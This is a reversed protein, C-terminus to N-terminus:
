LKVEELTKFPKFGTGYVATTTPRSPRVESEELPELHFKSVRRLRQLASYHIDAIFGEQKIQLHTQFQVVPSIYLTLVQTDTNNAAILGYWRNLAEPRDKQPRSPVFRFPTKTKPRIGKQLSLGLRMYGLVEDGPALDAVEVAM